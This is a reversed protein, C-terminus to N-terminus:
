STADLEQWPTWMSRWPGEYETTPAPGAPAPTMEAPPAHIPVVHASRVLVHAAHVVADLAPLAVGVPKGLSLKARARNHLTLSVWPEDPHRARMPPQAPTRPGPAHPPPSPPDQIAVLDHEICRAFLAQAERPSIQLRHRREQLGGGLGAVPLTVVVIAGRGGGDVFLVWGGSFSSANSVTLRAHRRDEEDGLFAATRNEVMLGVITARDVGARDPM